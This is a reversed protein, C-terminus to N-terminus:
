EIELLGAQELLAHYRLWQEGTMMDEYKPNKLVEVMSLQRDGAMVTVANFVSLDVDTEPMEEKGKVGLEYPLIEKMFTRVRKEFGAAERKRGIEDNEEKNKDQVVQTEEVKENQDEEIRCVFNKFVSVRRGIRDLHALGTKGGGGRGIYATHQGASRRLTAAQYGEFGGNERIREIKNELKRIQTDMADGERNVKDQISSLLTRLSRIQRNFKMKKTLKVNQYNRFKYADRLPEHCESCRFGDKMKSPYKSILDMIKIIKFCLYCNKKTCVYGTDDEDGEKVDLRKLIKHLRFHTMMIFYKFDIHYLAERGNGRYRNNDGNNYRQTKQTWETMGTTEVVYGLAKLRSLYERMQKRDLGM